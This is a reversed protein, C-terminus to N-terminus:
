KKKKEPMKAAPAKGFSEKVSAPEYVEAIVADGKLVRVGHGIIKTGVDDTKGKTGTRAEEAVAHAEPTQIKETGSPKLTVPMEGELVTVIDKSKIDRGFIVFKVKLEQSDTSSNSLLVNLSRTQVSKYSITKAENVQEVRVRVPSVQAVAAIEILQLALFVCLIKVIKMAANKDFARAVTLGTDAQWVLVGPTANRMM